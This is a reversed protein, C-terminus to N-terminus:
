GVAAFETPPSLTAALFEQFFLTVPENRAIEATLIALDVKNEDIVCTGGRTKNKYLYLGPSILSGAFCLMGDPIMFSPPDAVRCLMEAPLLLYFVFGQTKVNYCNNEAILGRRLDAM